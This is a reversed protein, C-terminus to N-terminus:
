CVENVLKLKDALEKEMIRKFKAAKLIANLRYFVNPLMVLVALENEDFPILRLHEAIFYPSKETTKKEGSTQQQQQQQGSRLLFNFGPSQLYSTEVLPQSSPDLTPQAYKKDFYEAFNSYRPDPFRTSPSMHSCVTRIQM